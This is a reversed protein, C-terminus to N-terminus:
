EVRIHSQDAYIIIYTGNNRITIEPYQSTPNRRTINAPIIRMSTNWTKSFTRSATKSIIIKRENAKIIIPLEVGLGSNSTANALKQFDIESNNLFITFNEGNAYALNISEALLEGAMKAEGATGIDYALEIRAWILNFMAIIIIVAASFALVAELSLQAKESKAKKIGIKMRM